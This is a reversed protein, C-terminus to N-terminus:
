LKGCAAVHRRVVIGQYTYDDAFMIELRMLAAIRIAAVNITMM